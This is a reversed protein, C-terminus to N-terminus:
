KNPKLEKIIEALEAIDEKNLKGRGHFWRVVEPPRMHLSDLVHALVDSKDRVSERSVIAEYIYAGSGDSPMDAKAYGKHILRDLYTKVTTYAVTPDLDRNAILGDYIERGTARKRQWLVSLIALDTKSPQALKRKEPM